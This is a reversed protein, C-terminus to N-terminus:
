KHVGMVVQLTSKAPYESPMMCVDSWNFPKDIESDNDATPSISQEATTHDQCLCIEIYALTERLGGSDEESSM